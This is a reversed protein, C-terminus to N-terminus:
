SSQADLPAAKIDEPVVDGNTTPPPPAEGQLVREGSSSDGDLKHKKAQREEEERDLEDLQAKLSETPDHSLGELESDPSADPIEHDSEHDDEGSDSDPRSAFLEDAKQFVVTIGGRGPQQDSVTDPRLVRERADMAAQRQRKAELRPESYLRPLETPTYHGHKQQVRDTIWAQWEEFTRGNLLAIVLMTMNDCGVGAGGVTDPALCHDCIIECIEGLSKGQSVLLRVCGAVQQTTLCDWIGDCAIVIFEDDDTLNREIIEPNCTIIQEEAPIKPNRKYTFDGLARSLALNGNVRGFEVYGGAAKIRAREDNNEPKHDHSMPIGNGDSCIIARSDGANAVILRNDHTLLGAVATCGSSERMVSYDDKMDTDTNLFANKLAESYNGAKYADEKTLREHVHQGAYKATAAGGHGDYVAFFANTQSDDKDADLKLITAHADEM